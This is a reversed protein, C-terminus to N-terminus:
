PRADLRYLRGDFSCLYLEGSHDQGFASIHQGPQRLLLDNQPAQGPQLQLAWVNGLNFDAYVYRGRLAPLRSGRYVYGGTVSAGESRGYTWVPMMLGTTDCDKEPRFCHFGEMRNWGYNGGKVLTDIEEYRNQGVDGTWIRGTEPDFSLRWPNRLGYAFIEERYGAANGAFPNDPPIAYALGPAQSDVDIRLVTGLLTRLNQGHEQPDGGSGGDGVSIYLYGDSGFVVCGGNHNWYPQEYTLLVMESAPDARTPDTESVRFRSIRTLDPNETTYNVFFFGNERFRPHFALGLLGEENSGDDVRDQIDLFVAAQAADPQNDFVQIVGAQEVVFLRTDGNGPSQLDVPRAFTLHPFAVELGFHVSEGAETPLSGSVPRFRDCSIVLLLVAM